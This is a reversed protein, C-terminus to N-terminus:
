RQHEDNANQKPARSAKVEHPSERVYAQAAKTSSNSTPGARDDSPPKGWPDGALQASVIGQGKTCFHAFTPHLIPSPPPFM